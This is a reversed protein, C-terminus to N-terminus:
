GRRNCCFVVACCDIPAPNCPNINYCVGGAKINSDFTAYDEYPARLKIRQLHNSQKALTEPTHNPLENIKLDFIDTTPRIRVSFIASSRFRKRLGPEYSNCCFSWQALKATAFYFDTRTTTAAFTLSGHRARVCLIVLM